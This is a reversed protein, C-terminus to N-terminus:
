SGAEARPTVTVDYLHGEREVTFRAQDETGSEVAKDGDPGHLRVHENYGNVCVRAIVQAGATAEPDAPAKKVIWAHSVAYTHEQQYGDVWVGVFAVLENGGPRARRLRVVRRFRQARLRSDEDRGSPIRESSPLVWMGEKLEDGYILTDEAPNMRYDATDNM